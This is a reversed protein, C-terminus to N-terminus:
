TMLHHFYQILTHGHEMWLKDLDATVKLTEPLSKLLAKVTFKKPKAADAQRGLDDLGELLESKNEDDLEPSNKVGDVLARLATAVKEKDGGATSLNTLNSTVAGYQQGLNLNGVQGSININTEHMSRGKTMGYIATGLVRDEKSLSKLWDLVIEGKKDPCAEVRLYLDFVDSRIEDVSKYSSTRNADNLLNL